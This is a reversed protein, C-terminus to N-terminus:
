LKRALISLSVKVNDSMVASNGGVGYDLRNIEFSGKFLYNDGQATAKFPFSIPKTVDHITLTGTFYYDQPDNKDTEIKTSKITILPFKEEDFYDDSRLHEDRSENDTDITKVDVSVNFDASALDQPNFSINGKLGSLEGGTNIGFNKIVFHVKSEENFPVYNQTFATLSFLSIILLFFLKCM